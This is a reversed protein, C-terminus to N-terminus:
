ARGRAADDGPSSSLADGPTHSRRIGFHRSLAELVRNQTRAIHSHMMNEARDADRDRIAEALELHEQRMDEVKDELQLGLHFVRTSEDHLRTNIDVLRENGSAIAILTHFNSNRALFELYSERDDASYDFQQSAVIRDLEETSGRVAAMRAAATELLLRVEYIDVVTSYSIPTVVYGYRPVPEVLREQALRVLAERIPTEGIGYREALHPQAIQQGPEFVCTLIDTKIIAYAQDSLSERMMCKGEGAGLQV